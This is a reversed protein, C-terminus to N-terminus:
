TWITPEVSEADQQITTVVANIMSEAHLCYKKYGWHCFIELVLSLNKKHSQQCFIELVLSLNKKYSQQCFIGLRNTGHCQNICLNLAQGQHTFEPIHKRHYYWNFKFTQTYNSPSINQAHDDHEANCLLRSGSCNYMIM